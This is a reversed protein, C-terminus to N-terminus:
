VRGNWNVECKGLHKVSIQLVKLNNKFLKKFSNDCESCNYSEKYKYNSNQKYLQFFGVFDGGHFYKHPNNGKIFDDITWYYLRESVGYLICNELKRPLLNM